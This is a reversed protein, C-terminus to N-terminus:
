DVPLNMKKLLATYRPDGRVGRLFPDMNIFRLEIDHQLFARRLWQFAEEREGRWAHVTAVRYPHTGGDLAKLADLAALAEKEHLLGHQSYAIGALREEDGHLTEYRALAEAAHGELLDLDALGSEAYLSDPSIEASRQLADRAAAFQGDWTLSGGLNAWSVVNLPDSRVVKQMTAIAEKLRGLKPLVTARLHLVPGSDPALQTARDLDKQAPIWDWFVFGRMWARIVLAHADAPDLALSKEVADLSARAHSMREGPPGNLAKNGRLIALYNWAPGYSSEIAVAKELAEEARRIGEETNQTVLLSRGLLFLRHAEPNSAPRFWRLSTSSGPLLKVKLAEVVATALEGQVKFIDTLDRDYQNSWLHYGDAANILQAAIRVHDGSKRVSGELLTAVHLKAGISALDENKGKFYFSSTRGAVHLGEVQALANLIEETIGDSFYEQEKDSSLNVFPLVAISPVARIDSGPPVADLKARLAEDSTPAPRPRLVFYWVVGPAAALVGIGVLLIALRAGRLGTAPAAAGIREIRGANVDFIWALTVVIPFGVALAVVVYSLVAEPWHLGHMIPEIIQLIAFAAIGYGVLARFVRRRQLEAILSM